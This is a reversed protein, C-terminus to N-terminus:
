RSTIQNLSTELTVCTECDTFAQEISPTNHVQLRHAMLAAFAKQTKFAAEKRDACTVCNGMGSWDVNTGHCEPCPPAPRSGNGYRKLFAVASRDRLAARLRPSHTLRRVAARCEELAHLYGKQKARKRHQLARVKDGWTHKLRILDERVAFWKFAGRLLLTEYIFDPDVHPYRNCIDDVILHIRNQRVSNIDPM